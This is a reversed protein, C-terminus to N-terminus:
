KLMELPTLDRPMSLSGSITELDENMYRILTRVVSDQEVIREEDLKRKQMLGRDFNFQQKQIYDCRFKM